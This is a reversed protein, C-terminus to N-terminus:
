RFSRAVKLETLSAWVFLLSATTSYQVQSHLSKKPFAIPVGRSKSKTSKVIARVIDMMKFASNIYLNDGLSGGVYLWLLALRINSELDVEDCNEQWNGRYEDKFLRRRLEFLRHFKKVYPIILERIALRDDAMTLEILNLLFETVFKLQFNSEGTSIQNRNFGWDKMCIQDVILDVLTEILKGIRPNSVKDLASQLRLALRSTEIPSTLAIGGQADLGKSEYQKSIQNLCNQVDQTSVNMSNLANGAVVWDLQILAGETSTPQTIKGEEFCADLLHDAMEKFYTGVQTDQALKVLLAFHPAFADVLGSNKVPILHRLPYRAPLISRFQQVKSFEHALASGVDHISRECEAVSDVNFHWLDSYLVHSKVFVKAKERM